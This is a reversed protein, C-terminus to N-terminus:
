CLSSGGRARLIGRPDDWRRGVDLVVEAHASFVKANCFGNGEEASSKKLGSKWVRIANVPLSFFESECVPIEGDGHITAVTQGIPM